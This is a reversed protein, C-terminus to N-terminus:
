GPHIVRGTNHETVSYDGGFDMETLHHAEFRGGYKEFMQKLAIPLGDNGYKIIVREVKGEKQYQALTKLVYDVVEPEEVLKGKEGNYSLVLESLEQTPAEHLNVSIVRARSAAEALVTKLRSIKANQRNETSAEKGIFARLYDVASKQVDLPIIVEAIDADCWAHTVDIGGKFYFATPQEVYTAHPFKSFIRSYVQSLTELNGSRIEETFMHELWVNYANDHGGFYIMRSGSTLQALENFREATRETVGKFYEVMRDYNTNQQLPQGFKRNVLEDLSITPKGDVISEEGQIFVAAELIYAGPRGLDTVAQPVPSSFKAKKSPRDKKNDFMCDGNFIVVAPGEAMARQVVAAYQQSPALPNGEQDLLCDHMDSMNVTIPNTYM